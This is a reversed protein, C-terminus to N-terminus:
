IAAHRGFQKGAKFFVLGGASEDDLLIAVDGLFRSTWWQRYFANAAGACLTRPVNAPPVVCFRRVVIAGGLCPAALVNASPM